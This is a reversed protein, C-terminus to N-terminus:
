FLPSNYLGRNCGLCDPNKGMAWMIKPRPQAVWRLFLAYTTLRWSIDEGLFVPTFCCFSRYYKLFWWRNMLHLTKTKETPLQNTLFIVASSTTNCEQLKVYGRFVSPNSSSTEKKLHNRKLSMNIKAPTLRDKPGLTPDAAKAWQISRDSPPHQVVIITVVHERVTDFRLLQFIFMLLFLPLLLLYKFFFLFFKVGRPDQWFVPECYIGHLKFVPERIM